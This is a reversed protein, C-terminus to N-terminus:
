QCVRLHAPLITISVSRARAVEGDCEFAFASHATVRLSAGHWTSTNRVGNFRGRLLNLMLSVSGLRSSGEALHFTATGSDPIFPSDYCLAGAFHPNKVIGLNSVCSNMARTDTEIWVNRGPYQMLAQVAALYIAMDTSVNKVRALFKGPHNFLANGEATIGISANLLWYQESIAFADNIIRATGVDRRVADRADIRCSIGDIETEKRRPKHFDNSSGLAIAGLTISTDCAARPALVQLLHNMTGDGGAAVFLREGAHLAREVETVVDAVSTTDAVRMVDTRQAVRTRIREWKARATGSGSTPNLIVLM